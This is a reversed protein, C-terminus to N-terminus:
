KELEDPSKDKTLGLFAHTLDFQKIFKQFDDEIITLINTNLYLEKEFLEDIYITIYHKENYNNM